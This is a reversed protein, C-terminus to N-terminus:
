KQTQRILALLYAVTKVHVVGQTEAGFTMPVYHRHFSTVMDIYATSPHYGWKVFLKEIQKKNGSIPFQKILINCM